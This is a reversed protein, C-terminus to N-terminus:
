GRFDLQQSIFSELSNAKRTKITLILDSTLWKYPHCETAVGDESVEVKPPFPMRL